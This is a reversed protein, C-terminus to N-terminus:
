EYFTIFSDEEGGMVAFTLNVTNNEGAAFILSKDLFLQCKGIKIFVNMTKDDRNGIGFIDLSFYPNNPTSFLSTLDLAETEYFLTYKSDIDFDAISVLGENFLFGTNKVANKFLFIKTADDEIYAEPDRIDLTKTIRKGTAKKLILNRIKKTLTVGSINVFSPFDTKFAVLNKNPNSVIERVGDYSVSVRVNNLITYPEDQEYAVGDITRATAVRILVKATGGYTLTQNM